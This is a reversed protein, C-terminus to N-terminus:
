WRFTLIFYNVDILNRGEEKKKINNRYKKKTKKRTNILFHLCSTYYSLKFLSKFYHIVFQITSLFLM